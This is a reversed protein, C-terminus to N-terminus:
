RFSSLTLILKLDRRLDRDLSRVAAVRRDRERSRRRERDRERSRRREPPPFRRVRETERSRLMSEIM